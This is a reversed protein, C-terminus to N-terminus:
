ANAAGTMDERLAVTPRPLAGLEAHALVEIAGFAAAIDDIQAQLAPPSLGIADRELARALESLRLFGISAAASKVTHAEIRVADGRGAKAGRRMAALRVPMENVFAQLVAEIGDDGIADRLENFVARDFLPPEAAMAIAPGDLAPGRGQRGATVRDLRGALAARTVPKSLFDNMGADLCAKRDTAHANATLAIIRVSCFPAPLKRIARTAALGDMGPMMVDMFVVDYLRQACADVAEAGNVAVDARYGLRDILALFVQRNTNNDEVLLIRLERKDTRPRSTADEEVIAEDPVSLDVRCDLTFHFTSGKGAESEVGLTGGMLSVLRRSIALGLGTGGFRRAISPDLQSFEKFLLPIGHKPIGIGTDRVAFALRVHGPVMRTPAIGVSVTVSGEETFKVGNGVLNFLVQRLRGPDGVVRRPVDPAIDVKLELSKEAATPALIDVSSAILAHVDFGLRECEVRGAELKSFDLVDNILHLLHTASDRLTRAFGLQQPNLGSEMLVESMGVVGNMPTRIEHSMMALFETRARTGAEAADRSRALALQYRWLMLTTGVIGLSLVASIIMIDRGITKVDKLMTERSIGVVMVLPYGRVKRYASLRLVGDIESKDEFTGNDASPLVAFLRSRLLSMAAMNGSGSARARVIGDAGVLTVVGDPGLDISRYFSAIQDVSISAVVVGGFSGDAQIIPRSFQISWRDTFRNLVPAGVYVADSKGKAHAVFYDRDSLDVGRRLGSINSAVMQGTRDIVATRFNTGTLLSSDGTWSSIDFHGPNDRYKERVYLLTQDIGRITRILQEEFARALNIATQLAAAQGHRREHEIFYFSAIWILVVASLGLIPGALAGMRGLCCRSWSAAPKAPPEAAETRSSPDEVADHPM